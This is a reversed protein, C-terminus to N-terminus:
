VGVGILSKHAQDSLTKVNRSSHEEILSWYNSGLQDTGIIADLTVSEWAIVLAVDEDITYNNSWAGRKRSSSADIVDEEGEAEEEVEIDEVDLHCFPISLYIGRIDLSENVTSM